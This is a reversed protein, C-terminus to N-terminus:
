VSCITPLTLHTYSVPIHIPCNIGLVLGGSGHRNRVNRGVLYISWPRRFSALVLHTRFPNSPHRWHNRWDESCQTQWFLVLVLFANCLVLPLPSHRDTIHCPVWNGLQNTRWSTRGRRFIHGGLLIPHELRFNGHGDM